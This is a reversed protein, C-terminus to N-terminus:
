SSQLRRYRPYQVNNEHRSQKYVKLRFATWPKYLSLLVKETAWDNVGAFGNVVAYVTRSGPEVIRTLFPIDDFCNFVSPRKETPACYFFVVITVEHNSQLILSAKNDKESTEHYQTIAHLLSENVAPSYLRGEAWVQNSVTSM